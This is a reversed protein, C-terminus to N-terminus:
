VISKRLGWSNTFVFLLLSNPLSSPNVMWGQYASMQLLLKFLSGTEVELLALQVHVGFIEILAVSEVWLVHALNFPDISSIFVVTNAESLELTDLVRFIDMM